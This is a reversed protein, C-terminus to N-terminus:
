PAAERLTGEPTYFLLRRYAIGERQLLELAATLKREALKVGYACGGPVTGQPAKTVTCYIGQRRLLSAARQSRSLSQFLLFYTM